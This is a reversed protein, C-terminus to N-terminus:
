NDIQFCAAAIVKLGDEFEKWVRIYRFKGEIPNGMMRGKTDYMTTCIATDAIIRIDQIECTLREVVMDGRKHSDLDMQKTITSGDPGMCLLDDHITKDLFPINSQRIAEVLHLEMQEVDARQITM